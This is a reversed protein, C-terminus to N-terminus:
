YYIGPQSKFNFVSLAGAWRGIMLSGWYMSVFPAVQSSQISGFDPQKLLEGLNSVITVEVGVYVFIALMGLVLQPYRMAGWGTPNKIARRNSFLLGAVVIILAGVLWKMRFTEMDHKEMATANTLDVRYSNFVPAFMIILLGTIILLTYLAKNGKEVSEILVGLPVKKSFHFLAAAAIFLVGVCAYLIIVKSLSLAQIKEDTLAATTGFLAFAVIIPGIM